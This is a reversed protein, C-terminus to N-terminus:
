DRREDDGGQRDWGDEFDPMLAILGFLGALFATLGFLKGFDSDDAEGTRRAAYVEPALTWGVPMASAAGCRAMDGQVNVCTPAAAAPSVGAALIAASLIPIMARM